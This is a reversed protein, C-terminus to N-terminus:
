ASIGFGVSIVTMIASPVKSTGTAPGQRHQERRSKSQRDDDACPTHRRVSWSVAPRAGPGISPSARRSTTVSCSAFFPSVASPRRAGGPSPRRRRGEPPVARRPSGRARWPASVVEETKEYTQTLSPPQVRSGRLWLAITSDDSASSSALNEISKM